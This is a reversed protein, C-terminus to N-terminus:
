KGVAFKELVRHSRTIFDSIQSPEMERQSLLTLEYLQTILDTALEPDQEHIKPLSTILSNNTNIVFTKKDPLPFPM